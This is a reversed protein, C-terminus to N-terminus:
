KFQLKKNIFIYVIVIFFLYIDFLYNTISTGNLNFFYMCLWVYLAISAPTSKFSSVYVDIVYLVFGILPTLFLIGYFDFNAYLEGWFITPMSGVIGTVLQSDNYWAMVEQAINYSEFPFISMPNTMSIGYLFPHVKPFFELYHYAPEIQGTLTRSFVSFFADGFNDVRMFLFYFSTLILVIFSLVSFLVKVPIIGNRKVITNIFFLAIVFFAVPGKETSVILSFVTILFVFIFLLRNFPIPNILSKVYFTFTCLLLIRNMFLYYWHYKGEFANSMGSRLLDSAKSDVVGIASFLAINEFGIKQLYLFFVVICLSFVIFLRNNQSQTFDKVNFYNFHSPTKNILIKGLFFGLLLMTITLSTYIFVTFLIIPNNVDDARFVDLGFYLLPLGLYQYIMIGVFLVSIISVRQLSIQLLSLQYYWCFPFVFWLFCFLFSM